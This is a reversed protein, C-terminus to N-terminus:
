NAEIRLTLNGGESNDGADYGITTSKSVPGNAHEILVEQGPSLPIRRGEVILAAGSVDGTALAHLTYGDASNCLQSAVGLVDDTGGATFGVRCVIPVVARMSVTTSGTSVQATAYGSVSLVFPSAIMLIQISKKVM